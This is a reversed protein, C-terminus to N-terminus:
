PGPPLSLPSHFVVLVRMQDPLINTIWKFLPLFSFLSASFSSHISIYSIVSCQGFVDTTVSFRLLSIHGAPAECVQTHQVGQRESGRVEDVKNEGDERGETGKKLTDGHGAEARLCCPHPDLSLNDQSM